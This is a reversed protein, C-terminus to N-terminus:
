SDTGDWRPEPGSPFSWDYGTKRRLRSLTKTLREHVHSNIFTVLDQWEDRGGVYFGMSVQPAIEFGEDDFDIKIGTKVSDHAANHAYRENRVGIIDDHAPRLHAPLEASSMRYSANGSAFLRAYTVVFATTLMEQEMFAETTLEFKASRLRSYIYGLSSTTPITNILRILGQIDNDVIRLVNRGEQKRVEAAERLEKPLYQFMEEPVYVFDDDQWLNPQDRKM